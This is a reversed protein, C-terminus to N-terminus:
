AVLWDLHLEGSEGNRETCGRDRKSGIRWSQGVVWNACLVKRCHRSTTIRTDVSLECDHRTWTTFTDVEGDVDIALDEITAWETLEVMRRAHRMHRTNYASTGYSAINVRAM